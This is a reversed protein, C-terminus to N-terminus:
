ADFVRPVIDQFQTTSSVDCIWEQVVESYRSFLDISWQAIQCVAVDCMQHVDPLGPVSGRESVLNYCGDGGIQFPSSLPHTVPSDSLSIHSVLGTTWPGPCLM